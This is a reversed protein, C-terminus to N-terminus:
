MPGFEADRLEVVADSLTLLAFRPRQGMGANPPIGFLADVSTGVRHFVRFPFGAAAFAESPMRPFRRRGLLSSDELLEAM